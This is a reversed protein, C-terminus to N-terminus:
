PFAEGEVVLKNKKKEAKFSKLKKEKFQTNELGEKFEVIISYFVESSFAKKAGM